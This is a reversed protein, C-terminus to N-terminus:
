SLNPKWFSVQVIELCSKLLDSFDMEIAKESPHNRAGAHAKGLSGWHSKAIEVGSMDGSCEVM